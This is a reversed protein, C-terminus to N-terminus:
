CKSAFNSGSVSSNRSPYFLFCKKEPSPFFFSVHISGPCWLQSHSKDIKSIIISLAKGMGPNSSLSSIAQTCKSQMCILPNITQQKNKVFTCSKAHESYGRSDWSCAKCSLSPKYVDWPRFSLLMLQEAPSCQVDARFGVASCFLLPHYQDSLKNDNVNRYQDVRGRHNRVALALPWHQSPDASFAFAKDLHAGYHFKRQVLCLKETSAWGLYKLQAM